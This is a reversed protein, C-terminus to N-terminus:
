EQRGQAALPAPRSYGKAFQDQEAQEDGTLLSRAINLADEIDKAQRSASAQPVAARNTNGPTIAAGSARVQVPLQSIAGVSYRGKDDLSIAIHM